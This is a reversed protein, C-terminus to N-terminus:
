RGCIGANVLRATVDNAVLRGMQTLGIRQGDLWVLDGRQLEGVAAAAAPGLDGVEVGARLRLGLMFAEEARGAADLREAGATPDQGNALAEIYREPTRVNWFREGRLHGHAACGIAQYEGMTWYLQNHRCALGPQAWNSIEYWEYGNSGLMEEALEYKRAQDDDDPAPSGARVRAGLPTAPEVTLAYASVHTPELEMVDRLTAVWDEISEGPAGYIVDLNINDIKAARAWGVARGVNSRDHTRGLTALVNPATSQVGISLRNVGGRQYAVFKEEDVRDPNCEVTTECDDARPIAELIRLLHAPALLSPTGGGFFVSTAVRM